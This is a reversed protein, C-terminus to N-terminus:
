SILSDLWNTWKYKIPDSVVSTLPEWWYKKGLLVGWHMVHCNTAKTQTSESLAQM